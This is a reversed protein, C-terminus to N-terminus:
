LASIEFQMKKIGYQEFFYLLIRTENIVWECSVSEAGVDKENAKGFIKEIRATIPEVYKEEIDDGVARFEISKFRRISGEQKHNWCVTSFDLVLGSLISHEGWNYVVRDAFIKEKASVEKALDKIPSGWKLIRDIDEFFIGTNIIKSLDKEGRFDINIKEKRKFFRFLDV